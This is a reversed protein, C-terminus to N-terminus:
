GAREALLAKAQPIWDEREIRGKFKLHDNVWAVNEPTWAAIQEFRVVGLEKLIGAIKPGIGKIRQLDDDAGEIAMPAPAAMAALPAATEGAPVAEAEPEAEVVPAQNDVAAGAALSERCAALEDRLTQLEAAEADSADRAQELTKIREALQQREAESQGRANVAIDVEKRLARADSEATKLKAQLSERASNASIRTLYWGLILGLLAAILLLLFTQTILYTM